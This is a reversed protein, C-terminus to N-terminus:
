ADLARQHTHLGPYKPLLSPHINILRDTWRGVFWPTLVRMFGALAVIQVDTQKLADYIQREFAERDKGFPRHDIALAPIGADRATELGKADPKNSIILVPEAPYTKDEAAKLIADMNSGRGSILIALRLRTM